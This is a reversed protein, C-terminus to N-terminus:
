NLYNLGIDAHVRRVELEFNGNGFLKVLLVCLKAKDVYREELVENAMKNFKKTQYINPPKPEHRGPTPQATSPLIIGYSM